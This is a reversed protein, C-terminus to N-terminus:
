CDFSLALQEMLVIDSICNPTSDRWFRDSVNTIAARALRHAAENAERNVFTCKWSTLSHLIRRTDEVLHGFRNWVMTPSNIADVVQKADGELNICKLGMERCFDAAHFAALAEGTTAELAGRRHKSMAAIVRGQDERIVVGIGVMGSSKDVAVDWNAKVWGRTPAVWKMEERSRNVPKGPWEEEQAKKYEAMYTETEQVISFPNTFKREFVWRNRRAWIQRALQVFMEFDEEECRALLHEALQLFESGVTSCKQFIRKSSGWVDRAAPCDWLAHLVTEPENECIPCYPDKVVKRRMLADKTPLVNQCARWFFNKATNPISLSWIRKWLRSEERRVSGEPIRRRELDKSLHYASKVSFEGSNTGRWYQIDPQDTHSVPISNIAAVEETSFLEELLNQKWRFNEWDVLEHVKGNPNLLKPPSQIKFTSQLPIWAVGWINVDQGNGIRWITGAEILDRAGFISRWAFSPKSGLKAEMLSHQSYYKAKLIKATLSEPFKLLRWCQKALLARNFSVLDRFGMGGNEKSEGMRSWSMWRINSNNEKHGWWFRQMLSNIDKCLGKPLLFISMSFTPIAQIVAKLLVEKGAQSLFNLKWDGIRRWVRDKISKFAQTRSKGVLAPLGLYKDYRQTSPIGALRLIEQQTDQPTNRSFYISTKAQNLRQGSAMEYAGLLETLRQWHLPTTKCFLLSDDAFFLHNLRPGKKSTPVGSLEGRSEARTMIASLAEACMLFLYPSIPDGQRIGRTPRIHGTPAGNVLIEYNASKVCMMILNTWKCDFGMRGMVAELFDWEVRDYAKSMDLKVAMYGIKGWMRSHMTHLTEYAALINDSILRGPIFASQNPSIIEPLVTKLRNALTKSVLKYMVNCLSIPRFETVSIPNAIKPILALYTSNLVENLCGNSLIHIVANSVETGIDAWHKQFFCASFGDPGPAKLPAMQSLATGVEDVTFEKLLMENMATSVKPMVAELVYSMDRAGTTTFLDEFYRGFAKGIQDQTEWTNGREDTICNFFNAKKKQVTCAHFFRTNRDGWKMWEVKARQRWHLDDEEQLKTLEAKLKKIHASDMGEDCTQANLLQESLQKIHLGVKRGHTRQWNILGGQCEKLKKDVARWTGQETGKVRWIKKIVERCRKNEAWTAEFQFGRKRRQTFGKGNQFISLPLHDSHLTVDLSAEAKTHLAHWDHNAFVRDLREKTFDDGERGNDWTFLPGRCDLEHLGCFELTNRFNEMLFQPRRRGGVKESQDLIENFDGACLWPGTILSKLHCLLNWAECRKHSEPHGYFGTFVWPTLNEPTVMANIHRLSYNQIEVGSEEKWLLALGGSRGICDVVLMNKFGTKQKIPVMKNKRLKTEMLFVM